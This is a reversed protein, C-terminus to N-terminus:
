EWENRIKKQYTLGDEAFNVKGYYKSLDPKRKKSKLRDIKKRITETDDGKKITITM